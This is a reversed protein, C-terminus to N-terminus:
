NGCLIRFYRQSNTAQVNFYRQSGNVGISAPFVQWVPNSLNTASLVQYNKGSVANWSLLLNTRTGDAAISLALLSNPSSPITGALFEQLNNMGDGDADDQARSLDGAQGTPHGFYEIMWWDPIGDGDSDLGPWSSLDGAFVDAARNFDGNVLGSDWGQFALSSGNLSFAPQSVWTTWGTGATGTALLSNTGSLRDFVVLSPPRVIGAAADTAFTRYVVFRGDASIVPSDSPGAASGTNSQNVSVLTLTGAQIDALYIDNTGNNDGAVLNNTTVFAVYRGAGSWQSSGKIPVTSPYSFLNSAGALDYAFLQNTTQYLLRNGHPSLAAAMMFPTSNTYINALLNADWVYLLSQNDFYALRQGDASMSIPLVPHTNAFVIFTAGSNLDRWFLNTQAAAANTRCLFAVYRGDQSSVPSSCDNLNPFVGNLNTSVWLTTGTQLDRRFIDTAKTNDGAVLNTAASVFVVYRGDASIIPSYSPGGSGSNGDLGVSVLLNSGGTLDRVFVDCDGNFDNPV